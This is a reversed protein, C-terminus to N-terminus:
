EIHFRGERVKKLTKDHRRLRQLGNARQQRLEGVMERSEDLHFQMRKIYLSDPELERQAQKYSRQMNSYLEDAQQIKNNLGKLQMLISLKAEELEETFEQEQETIQLNKHKEM